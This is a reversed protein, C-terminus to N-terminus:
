KHKLSNFVFVVKASKNKFFEISLDVLEKPTHYSDTGINFDPRNPDKNLSATLPTDPFSHCDLIIVDSFIKLQSKVADNFNKHHPLYYDTLIKERLQSSLERLVEGSDTKVYLVGMGYKWMEEEEDNAFREPDCFIRSFDAKVVLDLDSQFLDDTHWDTLKLLEQYIRNDDIVYGKKIPINISSHPIHLILRRM